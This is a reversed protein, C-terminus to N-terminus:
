WFSYIFSEIGSPPLLTMYKFFSVPPATVGGTEKEGARMYAGCRAEQIDQQHQSPLCPASNQQHFLPNDFDPGRQSRYFQSATLPFIILCNLFVSHCFPYGM